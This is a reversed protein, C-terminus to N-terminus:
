GLYGTHDLLITTGIGILVLGGIIEARKGVMKGLVGGLMV